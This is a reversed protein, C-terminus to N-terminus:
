AAMGWVSSVGAWRSQKQQPARRPVLRPQTKPARKVKAVRVIPQKSLSSFVARWHPVISFQANARAEPPFTVVTMLGLEVARNCYKHTNHLVGPEMWVSVLKYDCPGCAEVIECAEKVREGVPRGTRKKSM